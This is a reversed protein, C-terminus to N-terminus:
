LNNNHNITSQQEMNLNKRSSNNYTNIACISIEAICHCLGCIAFAAPWGDLKFDFHTNNMIANLLHTNTTNTQNNM